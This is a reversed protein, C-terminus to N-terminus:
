VLGNTSCSSNIRAGVFSVPFQIYHIDIYNKSVDEISLMCKSSRKTVVAEGVPVQELEIYL